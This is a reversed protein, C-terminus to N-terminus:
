RGTKIRRELLHFAHVLELALESRNGTHPDRVRSLNTEYCYACLHTNGNEDYQDKEYSLPFRSHFVVVEVGEMGCRDCGEERLTYEGTM